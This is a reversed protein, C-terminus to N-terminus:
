ESVCVPNDAGGTETAYMIALSRNAYKYHTNDVCTANAQITVTDKTAAPSLVTSATGSAISNVTLFAGTYYGLTGAETEVNGAAGGTLKTFDENNNAAVSTASAGLRGIDSKRQTNRSSRQLAPVALFVILLILGAIALVIMVEIITFGESSSRETKLKKLKNLM